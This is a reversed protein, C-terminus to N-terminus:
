ESPRKFSMKSSLSPSICIFTMQTSTFGCIPLYSIMAVQIRSPLHRWEHIYEPHSLALAEEIETSLLFLLFTTVFLGIINFMILKYDCIKIDHLTYKHRMPICVPIDDRNMKSHPLFINSYFSKNTQKFLDYM